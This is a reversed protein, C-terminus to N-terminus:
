PAPEITGEAILAAGVELFESNTLEAKHDRLLAILDQDDYVKNPDMHDTLIGRCQATMQSLWLIHNLKYGPM